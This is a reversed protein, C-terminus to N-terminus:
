AARSPPPSGPRAVSPHDLDTLWAGGNEPRQLVRTARFTKQGTARDWVHLGTPDIGVQYAPGMMFSGGYAPNETAIVENTTGVYL